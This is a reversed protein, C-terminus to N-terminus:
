VKTKMISKKGKRYLLIVVVVVIIVVAIVIIWFIPSPFITKCGKSGSHNLTEGFAIVYDEHIDLIMTDEKGIEISVGPFCPINPYHCEKMAKMDCKEHEIYSKTAIVSVDAARVVYTGDSGSVVDYYQRFPYLQRQWLRGPLVKRWDYDDKPDEEQKGRYRASEGDSNM